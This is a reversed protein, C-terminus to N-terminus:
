GIYKHLRDLLTQTHALDTSGIEAPADFPTWLGVIERIDYLVFEGEVEFKLSYGRLGIQDDPVALRQFETINVGLQAMNGAKLNSNISQLLDLIRWERTREGFKARGWEVMRGCFDDLLAGAHAFNRAKVYSLGYDLSLHTRYSSESVQRLMHLVGKEDPQLFDCKVVDEETIRLLDLATRLTFRIRVNEASVGRPFNRALLRLLSQTPGASSLLQVTPRLKKQSGSPAM